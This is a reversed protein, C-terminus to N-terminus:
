DRPSPSTYLLCGTNQITITNGLAVPTASGGSLGYGTNVTIGSNTLATNPINTLGSGDGFLKANVNTAYVNGTIGLGGHIQLAGTSTSNSDIGSTAVIASNTSFYSMPVAGFTVGNNYQLQTTLGGPVGATGTSMINNNSAWYLGNTYVAGVYANGTIGVGGEVTVAGSSLSISPSGNVDLSTLTGVSTINPQANTNLTGNIATLNAIPSYLSTFIGASPTITGIAMNDITGPISTNGHTGVGGVSSITLTDVSLDTFNGVSPAGTGIPTGDISTAITPGLGVHGGVNLNGAIGVGGAVLVAGTSFSTSPTSANATLTNAIVYGVNLNQAVMESVLVQQKNTVTHTGQVTLNGGIYVDKAIGAGGAIQLAGSIINTANTESNIAVTGTAVINATGLGIAAINAFNSNVKGFSTRLNDGTGDNPSSGINVPIFQSITTM